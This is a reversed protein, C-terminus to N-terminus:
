SLLFSYTSLRLFLVPETLAYIKDRAVRTGQGSSRAQIEAELPYGKLFRLEKEKLLKVRIFRLLTGRVNLHRALVERAFWERNDIRICTRM